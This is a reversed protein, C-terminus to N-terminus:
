RKGPFVYGRAYCPGAIQGSGITRKIPPKARFWGGVTTDAIGLAAAIEANNSGNLSMREAIIRLADDLPTGRM